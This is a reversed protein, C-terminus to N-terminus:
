RQRMEVRSLHLGVITKLMSGTLDMTLSYKSPVGGEQFRKVLRLVGQRRLKGPGPQTQWGSAQNM